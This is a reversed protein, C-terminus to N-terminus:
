ADSRNVLSVANLSDLDGDEVYKLLQSVRKQGLKKTAIIMDMQASLGGISPMAELYHTSNQAGVKALKFGSLAFGTTVSLPLSIASLTALMGSTSIREGLMMLKEKDLLSGKGGSLFTEAVGLVAAFGVGVSATEILDEIPVGLFSPKTYYDVATVAGAVVDVSGSAVLLPNTSALGSAVKITGVGLTSIATEWGWEMSGSYIYTLKNFTDQFAFFGGVGDLINISVWPMVQSPSIGLSVAIERVTDGPLLPLGNKTVIDTGLHSGFDVISLREDNIVEVADTIFHHGDIRHWGVSVNKPYLHAFEGTRDAWQGTLTQGQSELLAKALKEAGSHDFLGLTDLHGAVSGPVGVGLSMAVGTAEDKLVSLPVSVTSSGIKAALEILNM